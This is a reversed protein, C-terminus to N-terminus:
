PKLKKGWAFGLDASGCPDEVKVLSGALFLEIQEENGALLVIKEDGCANLTALIPIGFECAFLIIEMFDINSGMLDRAGSLLQAERVVEELDLSERSGAVIKM